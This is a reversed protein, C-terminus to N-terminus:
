ASRKLPVSPAQLRTPYVSFSETNCTIQFGTLMATKSWDCSKPAWWPYETSWCTGGQFGPTYGVTCNCCYRGWDGKSCKPVSKRQAKKQPPPIMCTTIPTTTGISLQKCPCCCRRNPPRPWIFLVHHRTQKRRRQLSTVLTIFRQIQTVSTDANSRPRRGSMKKETTPYTQQLPPTHSPHIYLLEQM